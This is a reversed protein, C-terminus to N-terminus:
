DCYGQENYIYTETDGDIQCEVTKPQGNAYRDKFIYNEVWSEGHNEKYEVRCGTQNGESDYTFEYTIKTYLDIIILGTLLNADDLNFSVTTGTMGSQAMMEETYELGNESLMQLTLNDEVPDLSQVYERAREGSVTQKRKVSTATYSDGKKEFYITLATSFICRLEYDNYTDSRTLVVKDGDITVEYKGLDGDMVDYASATVSGKGGESKDCACFSALMLISLLIALIRKM